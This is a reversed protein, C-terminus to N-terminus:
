SFNFTVVRINLWSHCVGSGRHRYLSHKRTMLTLGTVHSINKLTNLINIHKPKHCMKHVRKLWETQKDPRHATSFCSYMNYTMLYKTTDNRPTLAPKNKADQTARQSLIAVCLCRLEVILLLTTELLLEARPPSPVCDELSVVPQVYFGTDLTVNGDLMKGRNFVSNKNSITRSHQCTTITMKRSVSQTSIQGNITTITSKLIYSKILTCM